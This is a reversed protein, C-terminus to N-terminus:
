PRRYVAATLIGLLLMSFFELAIQKMVIRSPWPQVAFYYILYVPLSFLMWVAIGFRAGQGPWPKDEVGRAYIWVFALAFFAFGLLMYIPQAQEPPRILQPVSRYDDALLVGHIVFGLLNSAVFM